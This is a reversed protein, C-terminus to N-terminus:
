MGLGGDVRIVEGTIYRSKEDALFLAVNAVDEVSGLTRLPIHSQIEKKRSESLADTMQTQIFGPAIANVRINRSGIEKAMSKTLGIIGAKSAAYNAQGANGTLGVVSSINIISGNRQRMMIAAAEKSCLFCGKLNVDVVDMFDKESMRLFLGDKTRGSNNILVDLRGVEKKIWAFMEKVQTEDCIDAQVKWIKQNPKQIKQILADLEKESSCYHLILDYGNESLMQAMGAGIGRGAGTICVVKNEM